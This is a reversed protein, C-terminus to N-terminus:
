KYKQNIKLDLKLKDIIRYVKVKANNETINMIEGIEKFARNEFYRMEIFMLDDANLVSLAKALANLNEEKEIKSFDLEQAIEEASEIDINIARTVKNKRFLLNMENIAIQYLWASFPVGRHEYKKLNLMAKLFVQSTIDFADEKTNVRQYVFLLIKKHYKKYLVEFKAPTKVAEIIQEAEEDITKESVHYKSITKM